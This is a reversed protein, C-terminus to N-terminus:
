GASRSGSQPNEHNEETWGRGPRAKDGPFPGGTGM